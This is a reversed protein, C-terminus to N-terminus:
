PRRRTSSRAKRTGRLGVQIGFLTAPISDPSDSDAREPWASFGWSDLGVKQNAVSWGHARYLYSRARELRTDIFHVSEVDYGPYQPLGDFFSLEMKSLFLLNSFAEQERKLSEFQAPAKLLEQIPPSSPGHRVVAWDAGAARAAGGDLTRLETNGDELARTEYIVAGMKLAHALIVKHAPAATPSFPSPLKSILRVRRRPPVHLSDSLLTRIEKPMEEVVRAYGIALREAAVNRSFGRGAVTREIDAVKRDLGHRSM